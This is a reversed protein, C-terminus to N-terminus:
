DIERPCVSLTRRRPPRRMHVRHCQFDGCTPSVYSQYQGAAEFQHDTPHKTPQPPNSSARNKDAGYSNDYMTMCSILMSVHCGMQTGGNKAPRIGAKAFAWHELRRLSRQGITGQNGSVPTRISQKRITHHNRLIPSEGFCGINVM